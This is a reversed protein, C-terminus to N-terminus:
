SGATFHRRLRNNLLLSLISITFFNPPVETPSWSLIMFTARRQASSYELPLSTTTTREAMPLVVSIRRFVARSILGLAGLLSSSISIVVPSCVETARMAM